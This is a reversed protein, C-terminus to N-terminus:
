HISDRVFCATVEDVLSENLRDRIAPVLDRNVRVRAVVRAKNEHRSYLVFDLLCDTGEDGVVRFGNAYEGLQHDGQVDVDCDIRRVRSPM